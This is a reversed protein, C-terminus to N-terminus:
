LLEIPEISNVVPAIQALVGQFPAFTHYDLTHVKVKDAEFVSNHATRIGALYATPIGAEGQRDRSHMRDILEEETADLLFTEQPLYGSSMGAEHLYPAWMGPIFIGLKLLNDAMARHGRPSRDLLLLMVKDELADSSRASEVAEQIRKRQDFLVWTQFQYVVFRNELNGNHKWEANMFRCYPRWYKSREVEEMIPVSYAPFDLMAPLCEAAETVLTSKGVGINGDFGLIITKVM